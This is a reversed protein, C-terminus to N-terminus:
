LQPLFVVNHVCVLSYLTGFMGPIVGAWLCGMFAPMFQLANAPYCLVVRDSKRVGQRYLEDAIRQAEVALQSFNLHEDEQGAENLRTLYRDEPLAERLKAYSQLRDIITEM